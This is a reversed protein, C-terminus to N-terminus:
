VVLLKRTEGFRGSGGSIERTIYEKAGKIKATLRDITCTTVQTDTGDWAEKLKNHTAVSLMVSNM